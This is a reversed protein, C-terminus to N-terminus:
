ENENEMLYKRIKMKTNKISSSEFLCEPILNFEMKLISGLNDIAGHRLKGKKMARTNPGSQNDLETLLLCKKKICEIWM